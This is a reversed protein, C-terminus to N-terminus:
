DVYEFWDDLATGDPTTRYLTVAKGNDDIKMSTITTTISAYHIDIQSGTYTWTLPVATYVTTLYTGTGDPKFVLSQTGPLPGTDVKHLWAFSTLGTLVTSQDLDAIAHTTGTSGALAIGTLTSGSVGSTYGGYSYKLKHTTRQIILQYAIPGGSPRFNKINFVVEGNGSYYPFSIAQLNPKEISKSYNVNSEGLIGLDDARTSLAIITIASYGSFGPQFHYIDDGSSTSTFRLTPKKITGLDTSLEPLPSSSIFHTGAPGLASGDAAPFLNGAKATKATHVVLTYMGDIPLTKVDITYTGARLVGVIAHKNMSFAAHGADDFLNVVTDAFSRTSAFKIAIVENQSVSFQYQKHIAPAYSSQDDRWVRKGTLDGIATVDASFLSRPELSEIQVPKARRAKM